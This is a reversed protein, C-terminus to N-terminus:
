ELTCNGSTWTAEEHVRLVKAHIKSRNVGIKDLLVQM